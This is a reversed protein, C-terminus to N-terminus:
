GAARELTELVIEATRSWTFQAARRAGDAVLRQRLPEDTAIRAMAASWAEPSDPPLLLAADGAIERMVPIDSALVPTGAAMAELVPLGFGEYRSPYCLAAAHQMWAALEADPVHGLFAAGAAVGKRRIRGAGFGDAGAVYLREPIGVGGARRLREFATFLLGLNKRPQLTGVALFYAGGSGPAPARERFRPDVGDYAVVLRDAPVGFRRRIAGASFESVTVVAAARRMTAPILRPMWRREAPTFWEPHEAFSVDHVVTVVPCPVRGSAAYQVLLVDLHDRRAAAPIGVPLRWLAHSPRLVRVSTRGDERAWRSVAAESSVYLVLEHASRARLERAVNEIWRENGTTPRGLAHADIGIRV